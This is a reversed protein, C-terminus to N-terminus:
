LPREKGAVRIRPDAYSYAMDAMFNGALTLVAGISLVGMIVPYDRAMVSEYFLRGMGPIAFISEFIVSGGILAPVSLGLITIVPLLANKLAHKYIVAREGLGKARATRIYDEGMIGIMSTRMYRSIVALSGFASIAVPLVLHRAVDCIRGLLSLSDFDLSAIGSVPLWGLTICFLNMLLLALWFEPASFGIFVFVTSIRDSLKGRRVASLIGLPIGILLTLALASFNILLTVPIREAIKESVPRDDLYSRGFDLTVFRKLWELYQVHVPKDLCYLKELRLRAEYSVKQNMSTQIDTPKGPALHIVFFSILTIGILTPILGLLRKVVYRVM